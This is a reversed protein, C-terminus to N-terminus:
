FLKPGVVVNSAAVPGFRVEALGPLFASGHKQWSAQAALGCKSWIAQCSAVSDPFVAAQVAKGNRCPPSGTAGLHRGHKRCPAVGSKRGWAARTQSRAVGSKRGWAARTQSVTRGRNAVGHPRTQSVTRRRNCRAAVRNAVRDAGLRVGVNVPDM